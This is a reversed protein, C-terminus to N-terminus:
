RRLTCHVGSAQALVSVERGHQAKYHIEMARAQKFLFDAQCVRCEGALGGSTEHVRYFPNDQAVKKNTRKTMVVPLNLAVKDRMVNAQPHRPALLIKQQPGLVPPGPRASPLFTVSGSVMHRQAEELRMLITTGASTIAPVYVQSSRVVPAPLATTSAITPAPTSDMDQIKLLAPLPRRAKAKAPLTKGPGEPAGEALAAPGAALRLEDVGAQVVEV